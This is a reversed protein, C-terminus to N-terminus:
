WITFKELILINQRHPSLSSLGPGASVGPGPCGRWYQACEGFMAELLRTQVQFVEPDKLDEPVKVWLPINRRAPLTAM